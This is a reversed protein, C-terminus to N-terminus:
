GAGGPPTAGTVGPVYLSVAGPADLDDEVVEPPGPRAGTVDIRRVSGAAPGPGTDAYYLRGDPGVVLGAPAGGGESTPALVPRVFAGSADYADIVGTAADSVFWGGGPAGTVGTAAEVGGRGAPILREATAGCDEDSTPGAPLDTYRWVGATPPGASAIIVDGDDTTAQHPAAIGADLVCAAAAGPEVPPFWLLVRGTGTEPAAAALETTVLRGDDLRACGYPELGDSPVPPTLSGTRTASLDTVSDGRLQHVGFAPPPGAPEDVTAMVFTRGDLFCTQGTVAGAPGGGGRDVEVPATEVDTLQFARRGDRAGAHGGTARAIRHAALGAGPDSLVLVDTPGDASVGDGPAQGGTATPDSAGGDDGCAGTVLALALLAALSRRAM